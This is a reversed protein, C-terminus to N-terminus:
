RAAEKLIRDLVDRITMGAAKARASLVIRHRTCPLIIDNIDDPVVYARGNIYAAAQAAKMVAVSGRPSIGLEVEPMQRSVGSIRSIYDYMEDHIFIGSVEKKIFDLGNKDIIPYVEDLPNKRYKDKLMKAEDAVNPYGMSLCCMFRDLQSEPLMHTGVSGVPNQTAIVCFPQPLPHTVSDVTVTGEEMAELLASQTKSSTRNIEDALFLNCMIAGEKFEFEATKKNYMTFGTVDSPLVDPTFQMRNYDLSMAKSFALALSTKGVGPIDDILIHGDAVIATIVAQIVDDKGVIVKKVEDMIRHIAEKGTMILGEEYLIYQGRPKASAAPRSSCKLDHRRCSPEERLIIHFVGEAGGRRCFPLFM